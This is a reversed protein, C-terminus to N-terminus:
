SRGAARELRDIGNGCDVTRRFSLDVRRLFIM